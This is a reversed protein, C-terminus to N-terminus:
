TNLVNSNITLGCYEQPNNNYDVYKYLGNETAIKLLWKFNDWFPNNDHGIEETALHALEHIAVYTLTNEDVLNGSDDRMRLCFVIKEGKNISYSTFKKDGTGESIADPNYRKKVRKSREDNGYELVLIEILKLLKMNIKGLLNAVEKSKKDSRVLYYNGDIESLEKRMDVFKEKIYMSCLLSSIVLLSIEMGYEKM